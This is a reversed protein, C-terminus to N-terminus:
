ISPSGGRRHSPALGRSDPREAPRAAPRVMFVYPAGPDSQQEVFGLRQYIRKAPNDAIVDLTCQRQAADAVALWARLMALAAGSSRHEPHVAIDVGHSAGPQQWDVIIRAITVGGETIVRRMALPRTSLYTAERSQFQLDILAEPLLEALPSCAAYLCRLADHHEPREAAIDLRPARQKFLADFARAATDPDSM